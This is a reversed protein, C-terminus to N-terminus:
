KEWRQQDRNWRYGMKKLQEKIGYTQGSVSKVANWNIGHSEGDVMGHELKYTVYNTKNTKALKYREIPQAYGLRLHGPSIESADLVENRYHRYPGGGYRDIYATEVILPKENTFMGGGGGGSKGGSSGRGGM